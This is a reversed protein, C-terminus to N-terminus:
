DHLAQRLTAVCDYGCDKWVGPSLEVQWFRGRGVSVQRTSATARHGNGDVYVANGRAIVDPQYFGLQYFEYAAGALAAVALAGIAAERISRVQPLPIGYSPKSPSM